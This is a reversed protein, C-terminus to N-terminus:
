ETRHYQTLLISDYNDIHVSEANIINQSYKTFNIINEEICM